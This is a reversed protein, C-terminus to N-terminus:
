DIWDELDGVDVFCRKDVGVLKVITARPNMVASRGWAATGAEV